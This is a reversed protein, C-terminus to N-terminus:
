RGLERQNIQSWNELSEMSVENFSKVIKLRPEELV